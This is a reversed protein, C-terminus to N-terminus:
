SSGEITQNTKLDNSCFIGGFKDILDEESYLEAVHSTKHCEKMGINTFTVDSESKKHEYVNSIYIYENDLMDFPKGKYKFGFVYSKMDNRFDIEGIDEM